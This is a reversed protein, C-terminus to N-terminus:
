LFALPGWREPLEVTPVIDKPVDPQTEFDYVWFEDFNCLVVYRPRNPFSNWWYDKAQRLHKQLNEGRQKMEILVIPKWVCDAYSTGGGEEAPKKIRFEAKGGAELLGGQGFAKFLHDLFIHAEGREYGNICQKFYDVFASLNEQLSM